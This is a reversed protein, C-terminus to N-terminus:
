FIVTTEVSAVKGLSLSWWSFCIARIAIYNVTSYACSRAVTSYWAWKTLSLFEDSCFLLRSAKYDSKVV